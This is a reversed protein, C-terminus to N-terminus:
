KKKPSAFVGPGLTREARGVRRTLAEFAKKDDLNQQRLQTIMAQNDAVLANAAALAREAMIKDAREQALEAAPAPAAAAKAEAERRAKEEAAIADAAKKEAEALAAEALRVKEEAERQAKEAAAKAAARAAALEGQLKLVEDAAKKEAAASAAEAARAREDAAQKEALVTTKAAEAEEKLKRAEDREKEMAARATDAEGQLRRAEEQSAGNEQFLLIKALVEKPQLVVYNERSALNTLWALLQDLNRAKEKLEKKQKEFLRLQEESLAPRSNLKTQLRAFNALTAQATIEGEGGRVLRGDESEQKLADKITTAM